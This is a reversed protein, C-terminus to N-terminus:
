FISDNKVIVGGVKLRRAFSTLSTLLAILKYMRIDKQIDM